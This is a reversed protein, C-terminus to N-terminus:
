GDMRGNRGDMWEMWGNMWKDMCADMWGDNIKCGDMM